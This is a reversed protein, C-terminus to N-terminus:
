IYKTKNQKTQWNSNTQIPVYDEYFDVRKIYSDYINLIFFEKSYFEIENSFFGCQNNSLHPLHLSDVPIYLLPRM